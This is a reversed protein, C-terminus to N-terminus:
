LSVKGETHLRRVYVIKLIMIVVLNSVSAHYAFGSRANNHYRIVVIIRLSIDILACSDILELGTGLPQVIIPFLKFTRMYKGLSTFLGAKYFIEVLREESKADFVVEFCPADSFLQNMESAAFVCVSM